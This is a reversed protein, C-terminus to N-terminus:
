PPARPPRAGCGGWPPPPPPGGVAGAAPPAVAVRAAGTSTAAVLAEVLAAGGLIVVRPGPMTFLGPAEVASARVILVLALAEAGLTAAAAGWAGFAPIPALALVLSAVLSAAVQ